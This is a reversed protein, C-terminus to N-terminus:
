GSPRGGARIMGQRERWPRPSTKKSFQSGIRGIGIIGLTKEHLEFIEKQAPKSFDGKRSGEIDRICAYMLAMAHDSVSHNGYGQVNAVRINREKAAKVDINDYGVGYRVIAKIHPMLDLADVDIVVAEAM